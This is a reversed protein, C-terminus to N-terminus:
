ICLIEAGGEYYYILEVSVDLTGVITELKRQIYTGSPIYLYMHVEDYTPPTFLNMDVREQYVSEAVIQVEM